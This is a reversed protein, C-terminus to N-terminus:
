SGKLISTRGPFLQSVYFTPSLQYNPLEDSGVVILTGFLHLECIRCKVDISGSGSHWLVIEVM